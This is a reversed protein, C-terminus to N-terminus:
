PLHRLPACPLQLALAAGDWRSRQLAVSGQAPHRALPLSGSDGARFPQVRRRQQQLVAGMTGDPKRMEVQRRIRVVGDSGPLALRATM